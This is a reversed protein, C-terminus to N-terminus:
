PATTRNSYTTRRPPRAAAPPRNPRREIRRVRAQTAGAPRGRGPLHPHPGTAPRRPDDRGTPDGIGGPRWPAGPSARGGATGRSGARRECVGSPSRDTPRGPGPTRATAVRRSPHGCVSMGVRMMRRGADTEVQREMADHGPMVPRLHGPEAPHRRTHPPVARGHISAALPSRRPGTYVGACGSRRLAPPLRGVSVAPVADRWPPPTDAIRENSRGPHCPAGAHSKGWTGLTTERGRVARFTGHVEMSCEVFLAYVIEAQFHHSTTHLPTLHRDRTSADRPPSGCLVDRGVLRIKSVDKQTGHGITVSPRTDDQGRGGDM